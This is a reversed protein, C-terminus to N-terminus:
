PHEFGMSKPGMSELWPVMKKRRAPGL